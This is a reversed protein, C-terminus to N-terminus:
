NGGWLEEEKMKMKEYIQDFTLPIGQEGVPDDEGAYQDYDYKLGDSTCAWLWCRERGSLAKGPSNDISFINMQNAADLAENVTAGNSFFETCFKHLATAAGANRTANSFGVFLITGKDMFTSRMSDLYTGCGGLIVIGPAHNKGKWTMYKAMGKAWIADQYLLGARYGTLADCNQQIKNKEGSKGPLLPLTTYAHGWYVLIDDPTMDNLWEMMESYEANSNIDVSYVAEKKKLDGTMEEWQTSNLGQVGFLNAGSDHVYCWLQKANPKDGVAWMAQRYGWNGIDDIWGGVEAIVEYALVGGAVVAGAVLYVNSGSGYILEYEGLRSKASSNLNEYSGVAIIKKSEYIGEDNKRVEIAGLKRWKGDHAGGALKGGLLVLHKESIGVVDTIKVQYSYEKELEDQTIARDAVGGQVVLPYKPPIFVSTAIDTEVLDAYVVKQAFSFAVEISDHLATGHSTSQLIQLRCEDSGFLGSYHGEADVSMPIAAPELAGQQISLQITSENIKTLQVIKLDVPQYSGDPIKVMACAHQGVTGVQLQATVYGQEQSPIMLSYPNTQLYGATPIVVFSGPTAGAEDASQAIQNDTFSDTITLLYPSTQNEVKILSAQYRYTEFECVKTSLSANGAAGGPSGFSINLSKANISLMPEDESILVGESNVIELKLLNLVEKM